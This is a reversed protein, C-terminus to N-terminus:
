PKPCCNRGQSKAGNENGLNGSSNQESLFSFRKGSLWKGDRLFWAWAPSLFFQTLVVYISSWTCGNLAHSGRMTTKCRRQPPLTWATVLRDNRSTLRDTIGRCQRSGNASSLRWTSGFVKSSRLRRSYVTGSRSYWHKYLQKTRM